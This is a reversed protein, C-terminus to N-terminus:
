VKTIAGSQLSGDPVLDEHVRAEGVEITKEADIPSGAVRRKHASRVHPRVQYGRRGPVPVGGPTIRSAVRRVNITGVECVNAPDVIVSPEAPVRRDIRALPRFTHERSDGHALTLCLRALLCSVENELSGDQSNNVAARVGGLFVEELGFAQREALAKMVLVNDLSEGRRAEELKARLDVAVPRIASILLVQKVGGHAIDESVVLFDYSFGFEDVLPTELAVAFSKFPWLIDEWCVNELPLRALQRQRSASLSCVRRSHTTWSLVHEPVAEVFCGLVEETEPLEFRRMMRGGHSTLLYQRFDPAHVLAGRQAPRSTGVRKIEDETRLILCVEEWLRLACELRAIQYRM